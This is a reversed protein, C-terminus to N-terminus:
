FVHVGRGSPGGAKKAGAHVEGSEGGALLEKLQMKGRYLRTAVTKEPLNLAASIDRYSMKHYHQMILPLRYPEPLSYLAKKVAAERERLILREEPGPSRAPINETEDGGSEPPRDIRGANDRNRRRLYDLCTNSAIRYLWTKFGAQYRFNPLSSFAKTFVEQTIDRADERHNVMKMALNFIQHQYREVLNGFSGTDGQITKHVLLEDTELVRKM